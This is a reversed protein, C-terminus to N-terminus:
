STLGALNATFPRNTFCRPHAPTRHQLQLASFSVPAVMPALFGIAGPILAILLWFNATGATVSFSIDRMIARSQKIRQWKRVHNRKDMCVHPRSLQFTDGSALIKPINAALNIALVILRTGEGTILMDYYFPEARALVPFGNM